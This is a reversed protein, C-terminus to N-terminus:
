CGCSNRARIKKVLDKSDGERIRKLIVDVTRFFPRSTDKIDKFITINM